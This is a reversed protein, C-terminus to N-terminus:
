LQEKHNELKKVEVIAQKKRKEEREYQYLELLDDYQAKLARKRLKDQRDQERLVEEDTLEQQKRFTLTRSLDSLNKLKAETAIRRLHKSHLHASNDILEDLSQRKEDLERQEQADRERRWERLRETREQWDQEKRKIEERKKRELELQKAVTLSM